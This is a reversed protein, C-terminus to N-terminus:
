VGLDSAQVQPPKLARRSVLDISVRLACGAPPRSLRLGFQAASAAAAASAAGGVAAAERPGAGTPRRGPHLQATFQRGCGTAM